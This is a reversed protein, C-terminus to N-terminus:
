TYRRSGPECGTVETPRASNTALRRLDQAHNDTLPQLEDRNSQQDAARSRVRARTRHPRKEILGVVFSCKAPSTQGATARPAFASSRRRSARRADINVLMPILSAVQEVM